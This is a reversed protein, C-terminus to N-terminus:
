GDQPCGTALVVWSGSLFARPAVLSVGLLIVALPFLASGHWVRDVALAIWVVVSETGNGPLNANM